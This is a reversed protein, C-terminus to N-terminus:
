LYARALFKKAGGQSHREIGVGASAGFVAVDCEDNKAESELPQGFFGDVTEALAFDEAWQSHRACGETWRGFYPIL